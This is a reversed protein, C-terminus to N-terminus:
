VLIYIYKNYILIIINNYIYICNFLNIKRKMGNKKTKNILKMKNNMMKDKRKNISNKNKMNVKNNRKNM